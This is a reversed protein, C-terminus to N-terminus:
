KLRQFERIDIEKFRSKGIGATLIALDGTGTM